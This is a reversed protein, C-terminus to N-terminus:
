AFLKLRQGNPLHTLNWVLGKWFAKGHEADRRLLYAVTNKPLSFLLFFVIWFIKKLGSTHRRMFLLRNRTMYYTKLTSNKGVSMSEKHYVKSQPVFFIKYGAKKISECWDIEEYYLFFFEPMMGAKGIVKRPVMMAAGHALDTQRLIDHQGRDKEMYGVRKNRGTYPNLCTSGAYQIVGGSNYYLIKPSAVGAYAYTEFLQVMPELFGPDVETDNNLFLLYDGTAAEIGLNNGGAFGLNKKSRIFKVEPFNLTIYATPDETSFNDIVIVEVNPYTVKRLSELLAGTVNAQNYNITIVSVRPARSM